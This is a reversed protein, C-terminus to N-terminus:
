PDAVAGEANHEGAVLVLAAVVGGLFRADDRREEGSNGDGEGEDNEIRDTHEVLEADVVQDDAEDADDAGDDAGIEVRQAVLGVGIQNGALGSGVGQGLAVLVGSLVAHVERELADRLVLADALEEGAAGLVGAAHPEANQGGNHRDTGNSQDKGVM